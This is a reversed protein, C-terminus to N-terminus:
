EQLVARNPVSHYQQKFESPTLYDLSSHPRVTNYHQRWGEIVEKAERGISNIVVFLAVWAMSKAIAHHNSDADRVRWILGRFTNKLHGSPWGM